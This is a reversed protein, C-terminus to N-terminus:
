QWQISTKQRCIEKMRNGKAGKGEQNESYSDWRGMYGEPDESSIERSTWCGRKNRSIWRIIQKQMRDGPSRTGKLLELEICGCNKEKCTVDSREPKQGETAISTCVVEGGLIGVIVCGYLAASRGVGWFMVVITCQSTLLSDEGMSSKTLTVSITSYWCPGRRCNSELAGSVLLWTVDVWVM